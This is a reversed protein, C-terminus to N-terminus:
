CLGDRVRGVHEVSRASILRECTDVGQQFSRKAYDHIEDGVAAWVRNWDGQMKLKMGIRARNLKQRDQFGKSMPAGPEPFSYNPEIEYPKRRCPSGGVLALGAARCRLHMKRQM